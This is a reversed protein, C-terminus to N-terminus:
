ILGWNTYKIKYARELIAIELKAFLCHSVLYSKSSIAITHVSFKTIITSLATITVDGSFMLLSIEEM